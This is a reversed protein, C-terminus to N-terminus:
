DEAVVKIKELENKTEEEIDRIDQIKLNIWQDMECYIRQHAELFIEKMKDCIKGAISGFPFFNVEVTVHKYCTMLPVNNEKCREIWGKGDIVGGKFNKPDFIKNIINESIDLNVIKTKKWINEPLNMVNEEFDAGEKHFSDVQMKFTSESFYLNKYNTNCRPYANFSTEELRLAKKSPVIARIFSPVKSNLNMIKVTKRCEGFVEHIHDVNELIKISTDGTSESKSLQAVIFLQSINYQELNVPLVIRFETHVKTM